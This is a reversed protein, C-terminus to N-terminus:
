VEPFSNTKKTRSTGLSNIQGESLGFSLHQLIFSPSREKADNTFYKNFVKLCIFKLPLLSIEFILSCFLFLFRTKSRPCNSLGLNYINFHCVSNWSRTSEPLLPQTFIHRKPNILSHTCNVDSFELKCGQLFEIEDPTPIMEGIYIQSM